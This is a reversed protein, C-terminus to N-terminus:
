NGQRVSNAAVGAVHLTTNGSSAVDAGDLRATKKSPQM